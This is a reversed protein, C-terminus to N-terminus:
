HKPKPSRDFTAKVVSPQTWAMRGNSDIVKARVYGEGGRSKYEASAGTTEQLVRGGSGIFLIRYHAGNKEKVKVRDPALEELEVGTSAYFEGRELAAVISKADRTETRVVVWAKGPLAVDTDWPRKLHHSDDVAVGWVHRGETLLRDWMAEASPPGQANVYPHGSAIELLSLHELQLLEEVGFAWGFNPHNVLPLGGAARVADINRQLVDVPTAGGQPKVVRELGLANVHLPKKPLRDTVEEAPILVLGPPADIRTIKDHYTIFLFDYGHDRYWAAVEQPSSDGDSESTHTHLNGKLWVVSAVVAVIVTM